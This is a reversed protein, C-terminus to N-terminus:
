IQALADQIAHSDGELYGLVVPVIYKLVFKVVSVAIEGYHIKLKSM